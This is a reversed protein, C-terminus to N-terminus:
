AKAVGCAHLANRMVIQLKPDASLAWGVGISGFNIVRGGQPRQWDILEACVGDVFKSFHGLYDLATGSDRRGVAFTHVGAPEEPFQVGEPKSRTMAVIRPLRIDWEHGIARPGAAEPAHGFTDGTRLNTPTPTTLLPHDADTVHYPPFEEIKGTPGWGAAELGIVRWSPFGCERMLSGRRQDHTHYLEGIAASPRGGINEDFKRCEMVEDDFSVRWLMTNGSTVILSGGRNLYKDVGEYAERSWYESHGNAFVASRGELLAPWRHLDHDTCVDFEINETELWALLFQDARAL